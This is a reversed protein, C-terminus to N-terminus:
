DLLTQRTSLTNKIDVQEELQDFLVVLDTPMLSEPETVEIESKNLWDWHEINLNLTTHM